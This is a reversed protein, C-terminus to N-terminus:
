GWREGRWSCKGHVYTLAALEQPQELLATSPPTNHAASSAFNRSTFFSIDASAWSGRRCSQLYFFRGQQTSVSISIDASSNGDNRHKQATPSIKKVRPLPLRAIRIQLRMCLHYGGTVAHGFGRAQGLLPAIIINCPDIYPSTTQAPKLLKDTPPSIPHPEARKCLKHQRRPVFFQKKKLYRAYFEGTCGRIRRVKLRTM